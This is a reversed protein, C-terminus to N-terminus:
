AVAAANSRINNPKTSGVVISSVGPTSAAFRLSTCADPAHGSALAKKILVGVGAERAQAIVPEETRDSPNLTVMLVDCGLELARRGGAPSKTSIGIARIRGERQLDRLATLAGSQDLIWEDRGDSHLLVIDLWDTRMRRLSREVSSRIACPSFDYSSRGTPADFAEGAKTALVWAARGGARPLLMGLREESSGYAPATDLLNIGCERAAHLLAVAEEDSPLAYGEGGPYRVGTNRGLKVTGLGLLSVTLGSRGLPRPRLLPASRPAPPDPSPPM